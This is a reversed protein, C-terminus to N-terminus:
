LYAETLVHAAPSFRESATAVVRRACALERANRTKVWTRILDRLSLLVESDPTAHRSLERGEEIAQREDGLFCSLNFAYSRAHLAEEGKAASQYAERAKAYDGIACLRVGVHLLVRDVMTRDHKRNLVRRLVSLATRPGEWPVTLALYCRTRDSGVLSLSTRALDHAQDATLGELAQALLGTSSDRDRALRAHMAARGVWDPERELPDFMRGDSGVPKHAYMPAKWYAIWAAERLLEALAERHVAILHREAKTGSVESPRITEGSDFWERLARRPALRMRSRPDAVIEEMLGRIEPAIEPVDKM